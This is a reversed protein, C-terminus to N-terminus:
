GVLLLRDMVDVLLVSLHLLYFVTVTGVGIWKCDLLDVRLFHDVCTILM